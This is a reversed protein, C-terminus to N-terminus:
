FDDRDATHSTVSSIDAVAVWAHGVIRVPSGVGALLVVVACSVLIRKKM